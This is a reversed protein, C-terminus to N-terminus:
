EDKKNKHKSIYERITKVKEPSTALLGLKRFRVNKYEEPKEPSYSVINTRACEFQSNFIAKVIDEELGYKHATIKILNITEKQM